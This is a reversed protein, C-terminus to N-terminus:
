GARVAEKLHSHALGVAEVASRIGRAALEVALEAQVRAPAAPDSFTATGVSVASAGAALFELADPGSRIGGMGLIPVDPLAAHM